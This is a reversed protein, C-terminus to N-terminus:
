KPFRLTIVTGTGPTSEMEIRANHIKAGHKVISLGLGSGGYERTRAKDVKYFKNWINPIDAEPIPMGTNFVSIKVKDEFSFVKIEIQKEKPVIAEFINNAFDPTGVRQNISDAVKDEYGAYTSVAYWSRDGNYRNVAM